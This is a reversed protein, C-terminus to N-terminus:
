FPPTVDINFLILIRKIAIAAKEQITRINLRAIM